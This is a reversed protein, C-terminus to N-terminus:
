VTSFHVAQVYMCSDLEFAGFIMRVFLCALVSNKATDDDALSFAVLSSAATGDPWAALSAHRTELTHVVYAQQNM